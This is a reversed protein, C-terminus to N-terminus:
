DQYVIWDTAYFDEKTFEYPDDNYNYYYIDGGLLTPYGFDAHLLNHAEQGRSERYAQKGINLNEIMEYFTM